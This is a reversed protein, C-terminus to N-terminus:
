FRRWRRKISPSTTSWIIGELFTLKEGFVSDVVSLEISVM